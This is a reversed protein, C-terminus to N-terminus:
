YLLHDPDALVATLVAIWAQPPDSIAAVDDWVGVLAVIEPDDAALRRSRVIRVLQALQEATPAQGLDVGGLFGDLTGGAARGEQAALVAHSAGAEALRRQVLVAGTSVNTTDGRDSGGALRRLALDLETGPRGALRLEYGSLTALSRSLVGVPAVKEHVPQPSGGFRPTWPEGRYSPDHLISRVLARLTLGGDLFAERHEALAGEDELAAKRGLMGEYVRRVTCSVFREDGAVHEALDVLREGPQGFYGPRAGTNIQWAREQDVAYTPEPLDSDPYMYGWLYSALPDLTSHCGQCAPNTAIANRISESDTLDLDTPFDIPRDLYSQCLLAQSLANARGRNANEVTSSHRWFVANMSLVGALPRGDVYRARVTGEPLREGAPGEVPELPWTDLQVPDVFTETSRLLHTFPLDNLAIYAVLQLPEEGIAAHRPDDYEGAYGLEPLRYLDIRTRWAGAFVDKMREGFAPDDVFGEIMADVRAPERRVAELEDVSPRVGRLDLSARTLLEAESLGARASGGGDGEGGEDDRCGVTALLAVVLWGRARSM